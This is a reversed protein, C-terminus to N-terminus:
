SWNSEPECRYKITTIDQADWILLVTNNSCANSAKSIEERKLKPLKAIDERSDHHIVFVKCNDCYFKRKRGFDVGVFKASSDCLPCNQENIPKM